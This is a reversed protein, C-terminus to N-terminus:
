PASPGFGGFPKLPIVQVVSVMGAQIMPLTALVARAQNEDEAELLLIGGPVDGRHWVQRLVNDAYIERVRAVEDPVRAAIADAEFADVNRENIALFQM